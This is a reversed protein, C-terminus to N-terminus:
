NCKLVTLNFGTLLHHPFILQWNASSRIQTWQIPSLQETIDLEKSVGHVTAQWAGRDTPNELNSYPFPNGNVGGPSRELGPISGEDRIDEINAPSNRVVLVLGLFGRGRGLTWYIHLFLGVEDVTLSCVWCTLFHPWRLNYPLWSTGSQRPSEWNQFGQTKPLNPHDSQSFSSVQLSLKSKPDFM